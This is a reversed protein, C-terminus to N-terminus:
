ASKTDHFPGPPSGFHAAMPKSTDGRQEPSPTSLKRVHIRYKQLHSKVEDTTLGDVKMLERIQKPTATQPGGLHHLADVFRQHLEPSWCRRQKRQQEQQQPQPNGSGGDEKVRWDIAEVEAASLSVGQVPATGKEEEKM